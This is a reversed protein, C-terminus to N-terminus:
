TEIASRRRRTACSPMTRGANSAEISSRSRATTQGTATAAPSSRQATTGRTADQEDVGACGLRVCVGALTAEWAVGGARLV